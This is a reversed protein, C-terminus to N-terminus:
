RQVAANDPHIFGEAEKVTEWFRIMGPRGSERFRKASERMHEAQVKESPPLKAAMSELTEAVFDDARMLRPIRKSAM